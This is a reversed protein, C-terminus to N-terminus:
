SKKELLFWNTDDLPFNYDRHYSFGYSRLSLKPYCDLIEGAFDRKFLFGEHGRYNVDIPTPNYYEVLCIYKNTLEYMLQYIKQLEKPSQHILIGKVLVLDYKIPSSFNLLSEHYIEIGKIKKLESVAKTNIEVASLECSPLLKTIVRLNNGSGAGLEIVSAIASTHSFIEAFLAMNSAIIKANTNRATYEDGFSGAWFKEQPTRYKKM